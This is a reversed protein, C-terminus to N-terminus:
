FDIFPPLRLRAFHTPIGRGLLRDITVKVPHGRGNGGLFLNRPVALMDANSTQARGEYASAVAPARVIILVLDREPRFPTRERFNQPNVKISNSTTIAIMAIRALMSNGASAFAFVLACPILHM